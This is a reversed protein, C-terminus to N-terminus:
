SQQIVDLEGKKRIYFKTLYDRAKFASFGDSELRHRLTKKRVVCYASMPREKYMRNLLELNENKKKRQKKDGFMLKEYKSKMVFKKKRSVIDISGRKRLTKQWFNVGYRDIDNLLVDM